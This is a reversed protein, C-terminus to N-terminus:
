LAEGILEDLEALFAACRARANHLAVRKSEELDLSMCGGLIGYCDHSALGRYPADSTERFMRISGGSPFRIEHEEKQPMPKPTTSKWAAAPKIESTM